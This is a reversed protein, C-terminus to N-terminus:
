AGHGFRAQVERKVRELVPEWNGRTPQRFLRMSSYWPCDDRDLLWRWDALWPLLVWTPKGLAGALHAVSTDISIVLDMLCCVAATDSFDLFTGGPQQVGAHNLIACEADSMYKQLSVFEFAPDFLAEFLGLPINKRLDYSVSRGWVVGIRPKRKPGLRRAWAAIKEPDVSIYGSPSPISELNTRFAVALSVVPSHFDFRLNPNEADVIEAESDLGRMVSRLPSQPAFLVRAGARRCMGVYRSFQLVDGFGQEFHILITKGSLDADGLWGSRRYNNGSFEKTQKRAEYGRWGIEFEGILLHLIAKNWIAEPYDPKLRLATEFSAMSEDLRRLLKLAVGRNSHVSPYDPKRAIAADYSEVAEELRDLDQLVNGRNSYLEARHPLLSIARDYSELADTLRGVQRLAHSRNNYAGVYDAKLAIARDYSEIALDFCDLALLANGRSGYAEAYSPRLAIARDLVAVADDYRRLQHLVNALANHAWPNEPEQAISDECRRLMDELEAARTDARHVLPRVPQPLDALGRM